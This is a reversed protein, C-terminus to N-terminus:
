HAISQKPIRIGDIRQLHEKQKHVNEGTRESLSFLELEEENRIREIKNFGKV